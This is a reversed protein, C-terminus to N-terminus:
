RQGPLARAFPSRLGAYADVNAKVLSKGASSGAPSRAPRGLRRTSGCSRSRASGCDPMQRTRQKEGRWSRVSACISAAPSGRPRRRTPRPSRRAPACPRADAVHLHELVLARRHAAAVRVRVALDPRRGGHRVDRRALEGHLPAVGFAVAAVQEAVVDRVLDGVARAQDAAVVGPDRQHREPGHPRELRHDHRDPGDVIEARQGVRSRSASASM